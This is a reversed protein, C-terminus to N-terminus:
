PMRRAISLPWPTHTLLPTKEFILSTVTQKARCHVNRWALWLGSDPTPLHFQIQRPQNTALLSDVIQRLFDKGGDWTIFDHGPIRIRM